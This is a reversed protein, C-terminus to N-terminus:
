IYIDSLETRTKYRIGKIEDIMNKDYFDKKEFEECINSENENSEKPLRVTFKAGKNIESEVIIEGNHLEVLSKAISLGIGSGENKRNLGNDVQVFKDFISLKDMKSIGIGNDEVIIELYKNLSNITVYINDNDNSFKIANSVLNLIAREIKSVDVKMMVVEENTDFILNLNKKEAYPIVAMVLEETLSVINCNDLNLKLDNLEAKEVDIMNNILRILRYCNNKVINITNAEKDKEYRNSEMLQVACLIVNIPTKLEHSINAIFHAKLKNAEEAKNKANIIEKEYKGKYYIYKILVLILLILITFIITLVIFVTKYQRIMDMPNNIIRSNQPLKKIKINFNKLVNYDFIYENADEGDSYLEEEDIGELLGLVIEAAKKGQNFHNIVKGGVSGTGISYELVSYVPIRPNIEAILKNIDLTKIWEGNRFDNPYLSIIVSNNKINKITENFEDITLESTIITDFNLDSHSNVINEYFVEGIDNLFIINETEPHFEKILKLNEEISEIERVGSVKEYKFAEELIENKQIGLFSIPIDKFIDNRYRLCFELAEDDGVIIADYSEYNEFSSKLLNYFKEENERNYYGNLDMYEVRLNVNNKFGTKIGEVQDEFSIFNSNYSSIFLVNLKEEKYEQAYVSNNCLTIYIIILISILISLRWQVRRM